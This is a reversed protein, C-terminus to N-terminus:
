RAASLALSTDAHIRMLNLDGDIYNHERNM